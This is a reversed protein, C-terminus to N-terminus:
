WHHGNKKARASKLGINRLPIMPLSGKSTRRHWRQLQETCSLALLKEKTAKYHKLYLLIALVHCCLGSVGVPCDCFGKKPINDQFFIIAPRMLEGYSKKVLARVYKIQDIQITKVSVIKRSTLMSFAKQQQGLSGERKQGAYQKFIADHIPPYLEVKSDWPATQPPIDNPDLSDCLFIEKRSKEEVKWSIIPITKGQKYTITSRTTYRIDSSLATKAMYHM